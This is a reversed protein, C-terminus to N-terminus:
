DPEVVVGSLRYGLQLETIFHRPQSPDEELKQRIQGMFVRIYHNRDAYAAGWGELLLQKHTIVKGNGRILAVLLRFQIRTHHVPVGERFVEHTALNVLVKGFRVRSSPAEDGPLARARRMLARVRALLEPVGFPKVLYDDAGADLASVKEEESDRASLVIIPATYWSRIDQILEKGDGDPLGLDVIMLDPKRTAADLRAQGSGLAELVHFEEKELAIRVFRRINAEDEVILVKPKIM